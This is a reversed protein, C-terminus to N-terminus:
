EFSGTERTLRRVSWLGWFTAALAVPFLLWAGPGAFIALLLFLPFATFAALGRALRKQEAPGLSADWRRGRGSELWRWAVVARGQGDWSRVVLRLLVAGYRDVLGPPPPAIPGASRQSPPQAVSPSFPAAPAGTRTDIVILRGDKEEVRYRGQPADM